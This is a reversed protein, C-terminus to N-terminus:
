SYSRTGRRRLIVLGSVGLLLLGATAPEPVPAAVFFVFPDVAPQSFGGVNRIRLAPATFSPRYNLLPGIFDDTVKMRFGTFSFPATLRLDVSASFGDGGEYRSSNTGLLLPAPGQLGLFEFEITAMSLNITNGGVGPDAQFDFSVRARNGGTTPTDVVYRGGSPAISEWMVMNTTGLEALFSSPGSMLIHHSAEGPFGGTGDVSRFTIQDTLTYPINIAKASSVAIILFPIMVIFSKKM